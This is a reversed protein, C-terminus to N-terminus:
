WARDSTSPLDALNNSEDGDPLSRLYESGGRSAVAVGRIGGQKALTVGEQKSLTRGDSLEYGTVKGREKVLRAISQADANPVPTVLNINAPLHGFRQTDNM